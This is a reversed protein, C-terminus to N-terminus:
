KTLGEEGRLRRVCNERGAIIASHRAVRPSSGPRRSAYKGDMADNAAEEILAAVEQPHSEYFSHSAGDVEITHSHARKAYM